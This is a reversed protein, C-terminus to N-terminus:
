RLKVGENSRKELRYYDTSTRMGTTARLAASVDRCVRSMQSVGRRWPEENRRREKDDKRRYSVVSTHLHSVFIGSTHMNHYKSLGTRVGLM